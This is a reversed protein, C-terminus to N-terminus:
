YGNLLPLSYHQPYIALVRHNGSDVLYKLCDGKRFNSGEPLYTDQDPVIAAGQLMHKGLSVKWEGNAAIEIFEANIEFLMSQVSNVFNPPLFLKMEPELAQALVLNQYRQQNLKLIDAVKSPNQLVTAAISKLSDGAKVTYIPLYDELRSDGYVRCKGVPQYESDGNVVSSSSQAETNIRRAVVINEKLFHQIEQNTKFTFVGLGLAAISVLSTAILLIPETSSRKVKNKRPM